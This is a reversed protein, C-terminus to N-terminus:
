VRTLWRESYPYGHGHNTSMPYEETGLDLWLRSFDEPAALTFFVLFYCFSRIGNRTLLNRHGTRRRLRCQGRCCEPSWRFWRLRGHLQREIPIGTVLFSKMTMALAMLANGLSIRIWTVGSM